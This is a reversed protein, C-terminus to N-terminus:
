SPVDLGEVAAKNMLVTFRGCLDSTRERGKACFTFMESLLEGMKDAASKEPFRIDLCDFIREEDNENVLTDLDLADEVTKAAIGDLLTFVM